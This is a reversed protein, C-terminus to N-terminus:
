TGVLKPLPWNRVRRFEVGQALAFLFMLAVIGPPRMGARFYAWYSSLSISGTDREEEGEREEEIHDPDQVADFEGSMSSMSRPRTVVEEVVASASQSLATDKMDLFKDLKDGLEAPRGQLVVSGRELVVVHDAAKVFQVHHTVLIRLRQALMGCISQEFLVKCVRADVASLPDDLLYIDAQSYLARALSVRARQGGSMGAGRQGIRTLDGMRLRSLDAPLDCCELVKKYLGPDYPQGFLINERVTGSFVWPSQSVFSIRGFSRIQGSLLPLEELVSLLLSTKGCGVAGTIVVLSQDSAKVTVDNLTNPEPSGTWTCSVGTIRLSPLLRGGADNSTNSRPRLDMSTVGRRRVTYKAGRTSGTHGNGPGDDDNVYAANETGHQTEGIPYETDHDLFTQVRQLSIRVDAMCRLSDSLNVAIAFKMVNLGMLLTFIQFAHLPIDSAIMVAFSVLAALLTTANYLSM